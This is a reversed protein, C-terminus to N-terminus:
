QSLLWRLACGRSTLHKVLHWVRLRSMAFRESISAFLIHLGQLVLECHIEDSIVVGGADIVLDGLLKLEQKTWM